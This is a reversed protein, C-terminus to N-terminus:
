WAAGKKKGAMDFFDFADLRLKFPAIDALAAEAVGAAETFIDEAVFPYLINIHPPWRM